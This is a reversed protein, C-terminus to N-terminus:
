GSMLCMCRWCGDMTAMDNSFSFNIVSPRHQLHRPFEDFITGGTVGKYILVFCSLCVQRDTQGLRRGRPRCMCYHQYLSRALFRRALCWSRQDGVIFSAHEKRRDTVGGDVCVCVWMPAQAWSSQWDSVGVCHQTESFRWFFNCDPVVAALLHYCPHKSCTRCISVPNMYNGHVMPVMGGWAMSSSLWYVKFIQPM